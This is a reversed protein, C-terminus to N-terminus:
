QARNIWKHCYQHQSSPSAIYSCPVLPGYSHSKAFMECKSIITHDDELLARLYRTDYEQLNCIILHTSLTRTCHACHIYPQNLQYVEMVLRAPCQTGDRLQRGSGTCELNINLDINDLYQSPIIPSDNSSDM